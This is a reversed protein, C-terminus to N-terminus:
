ILLKVSVLIECKKINGRPAELTVKCLSDVMKLNEKTYLRRYIQSSIM